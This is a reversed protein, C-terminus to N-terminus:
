LRTVYKTSQVKKKLLIYLYINQLQYGYYGNPAVLM